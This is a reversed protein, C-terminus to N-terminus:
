NTGTKADLRIGNKAELKTGIKVNIKCWNKEKKQLMKHM